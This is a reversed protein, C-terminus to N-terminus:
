CQNRSYAMQEGYICPFQVAVKYKLQVSLNWPGGNKNLLQYERL